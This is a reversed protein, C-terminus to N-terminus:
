EKGTTLSGIIRGYEEMKPRHLYIGLAAMSSFIYLTNYDDGLVFMLLGFLAVTETMTQTLVITVLYRKAAPAEGPMTQNLRLMIYRLLIALPFIVIAIAYLVSRIFVRQSEESPIQMQPGFYQCALVYGGLMTVVGGVVFWHARLDDDAAYRNGSM